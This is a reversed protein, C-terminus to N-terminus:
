GCLLEHRVNLATVHLLRGSGDELGVRDVLDDRDEALVGAGAARSRAAM